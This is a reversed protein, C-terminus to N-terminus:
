HAYQWKGTMPNYQPAAGQPAMEWGGTMPNHRPTANPVAMEWKGTMSNFQPSAGPAAMEWKGNMSNFQPTAGPLAMEWNGTMPNFQSSGQAHGSAVVLPQAAILAALVLGMIRAIVRRAEGRLRAAERVDAARAGHKWPAARCRALGEATRPGTSAGGHKHCRGNAMAPARCLLGTHKRRAGCRPAADAAALARHWRMPEVPAKSM